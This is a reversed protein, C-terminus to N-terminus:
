YNFGMEKIQKQYQKLLEQRAKIIKKKHWWLTLKLRWEPCSLMVVERMKRLINFLQRSTKLDMKSNVEIFSSRGYLSVVEYVLFKGEALAMLNDYRLMRELGNDPWEIPAYYRANLHFYKWVFDRVAKHYLFPMVFIAEEQSNQLDLFASDCDQYCLLRGKSVGLSRCYTRQCENVDDFLSSDNICCVIPYFEYHKNMLHYIKCANFAADMDASFLIIKTAKVPKSPELWINDAQPLLYYFKSLSLLYDYKM